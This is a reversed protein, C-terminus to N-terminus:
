SMTHPPQYPNGTEAVAPLEYDTPEDLRPAREDADITFWRGVAEEFLRPDHPPFFRRAYEIRMHGLSSTSRTAERAPFPPLLWGWLVVEVRRAARIRTVKSWPLFKPRGLVREFRLGEASIRLSRVTFLPSVFLTFLAAGLAAAVLALTWSGGIAVVIAAPIGYLVGLTPVAVLLGVLVDALDRPGSHPKLVVELTEDSM